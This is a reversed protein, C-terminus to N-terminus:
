EKESQHRLVRSHRICSLYHKLFLVPHTIIRPNTNRYTSFYVTQKTNKQLYLMVARILLMGVFSSPALFLFRLVSELSIQSLQSLHSLFTTSLIGLQICLLTYHLLPFSKYDVCKSHYTNLIYSM